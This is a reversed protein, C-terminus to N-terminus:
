RPKSPVQMSIVEGPGGVDFRGGLVLGRGDPTFVPRVVLNDLRFRTWEQASPLDYLRFFGGREQALIAGMPTYVNREGSALLMKGDPSFALHRVPTPQQPLRTDTPQGKAANWLQILGVLDGTAIQQDPSFAVATVQAKHKLAGRIEKTKMDHLTVENGRAVALLSGDPSLALRVALKPNTLEIVSILERTATDWTKVIKSDSASIRKGDGSFALAQPSSNDAFAWKTPDQGAKGLTVENKESSAVLGGKASLVLSRVTPTWWAKSKERENGSRADLSLLEELTAVWMVDEAVGVALPFHKVPRQWAIKVEGLNNSVGKLVDLRRQHSEIGSKKVIDALKVFEKRTEPRIGADILRDIALLARAGAPNPFDSALANALDIQLTPNPLSKLHVREIQEARELQGIAGQRVGPKGWDKTSAYIEGLLAHVAYLNHWDRAEKAAQAVPNREDMHSVFANVLADQGFKEHHLKLVSAALLAAENNSPDIWYAASALALATRANELASPKNKSPQSLEYYQEGTQQLLRSFRLKAENNKSVLPEWAAFTVLAEQTSAFLSSKRQALSKSDFILDIDRIIPEWQAKALLPKLRDRQVKYHKESNVDAALYYDLLLEVVPEKQLALYKPIEVGADDILPSTPRLMLKFLRQAEKPAVGKQTLLHLAKSAAFKANPRAELADLYKSCAKDYQQLGEYAEGLNTWLLHAHVRSPNKVAEFQDIAKQFDGKELYLRGFNNCSLEWEFSHQPLNKVARDYAQFQMTKLDDFEKPKPKVELPKAPKIGKELILAQQLAADGQATPDKLKIAAKEAQNFANFAEKWNGKKAEKHGDAVHKDVDPPRPPPPGILLIAGRSKPQDTCFYELHLPKGPIGGGDMFIKDNFRFSGSAKNPISALVFLPKGDKAKMTSQLSHPGPTSNVWTVVQGVRVVVTEPQKDGKQIMVTRTNKEVSVLNIVVSDDPPRPQSWALNAAVIQLTAALLISDLRWM